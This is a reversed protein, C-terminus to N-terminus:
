EGQAVSYGPQGDFRYLNETKVAPLGAELLRVLLDPVREPALTGDVAKYRCRWHDTCFTDPHGEPWVKVGRNTVV